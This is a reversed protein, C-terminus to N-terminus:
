LPRLSLRSPECHYESGAEHHPLIGHRHTRAPYHCWSSAWFLPHLRSLRWQLFCCHPIFWQSPYSVYRLTRAFTGFVPSGVKGKLMNRIHNRPTTKSIRGYGFPSFMRVIRLNACTHVLEEGPLIETHSNHLDANKAPLYMGVRVMMKIDLFM